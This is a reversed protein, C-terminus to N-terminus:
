ETDVDFNVDRGASMDMFLFNTGDEDGHFAEKDHILPIQSEMSDSGFMIVTSKRRRSAHDNWFYSSGTKDFHEHDAPCEFDESGGVYPLLIEELVNKGGVHSKRGIKIDPFFNGNDGLYGELGAGLGRLQNLCSAQQAKGRIGNVIPFSIGALAIVIGATVLLETMAFGRRM